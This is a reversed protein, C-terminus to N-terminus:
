EEQREKLMDEEKDRLRAVLTNKLEMVELQKNELGSQVEFRPMNARAEDM